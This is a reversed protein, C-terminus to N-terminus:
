RCNKYFDPLMIKMWGHVKQPKQNIIKAAQSKWGWKNFDIDSKLLLDVYKMQSDKYKKRLDLTCQERSRRKKKIESYKYLNDGYVKPEITQISTLFSLFKEISEENVQDYRIRYVTWGKKVLIEDRKIDHEVRETGNSFHCKGDLEVALKINLFAFDIFYPYESYECVIDYLKFLEHKKIVNESFWNELFSMEGRARKDWPTNGTKKEM